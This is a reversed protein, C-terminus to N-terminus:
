VLSMTDQSLRPGPNHNPRQLQLIAETAKNSIDLFAKETKQKPKRNGKNMVKLNCLDSHKKEQDAYIRQNCIRCVILPVSQEREKELQNSWHSTQM